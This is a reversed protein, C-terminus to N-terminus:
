QSLADAPHPFRTYVPQDLQNTFDPYTEAVWHKWEQAKRTRFTPQKAHDAIVVEHQALQLLQYITWLAREHHRYPEPRDGFADSAGLTDFYHGNLYLLYAPTM